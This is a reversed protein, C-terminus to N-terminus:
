HHRYNTKGHQASSACEAVALHEAARNGTVISGSFDAGRLEGRRTLTGAAGFWAIGCKAAPASGRPGAAVTATVDWPGPWGPSACTGVAALRACTAATEMAGASAFLGAATVGRTM